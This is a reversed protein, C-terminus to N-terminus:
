INNEHYDGGDSIELMKIKDLGYDVKTLSRLIAWDPNGRLKNNTYCKIPLITENSKAGLLLFLAVSVGQKAIMPCKM